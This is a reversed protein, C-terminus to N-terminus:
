VSGPLTRYHLRLSWRRKIYMGNNVSSESTSDVHSCSCITLQIVCLRTLRILKDWQLRSSEQNEDLLSFVVMVLLNSNQICNLAQMIYLSKAEHIKVERMLLNPLLTVFTDIRFNAEGGNMGRVTHDNASWACYSLSNFKITAFQAQGASQLLTSAPIQHLCRDPMSVCVMLPTMSMTSGVLADYISGTIGSCPKLQITPLCFEFVRPITRSTGPRHATLCIITLTWQTM